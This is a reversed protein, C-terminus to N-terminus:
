LRCHNRWVVNFAAQLNTQELSNFIRYLDNWIFPGFISGQPVGHKMNLFRSSMLWGRYFLLIPARLSLRFVFLAVCYEKSDIADIIDYHCLCFFVPWTPYFNYILNNQKVQAGASLHFPPTCNSSGLRLSFWICLSCLCGLFLSSYNSWKSREKWEWVDGQCIQSPQYKKINKSNHKFINNHKFRIVSAKIADMIRLLPM